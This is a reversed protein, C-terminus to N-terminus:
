ISLTEPVEITCRDAQEAAEPWATSTVALVHFVVDVFINVLQLLFTMHDKLQKTRLTSSRHFLKYM